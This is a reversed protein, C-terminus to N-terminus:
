DAQSENVVSVVEHANAIIENKKFQKFNETPNILCVVPKEGARSAARPM